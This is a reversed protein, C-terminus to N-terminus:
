HNRLPSILIAHILEFSVVSVIEKTKKLTQVPTTETKRPM